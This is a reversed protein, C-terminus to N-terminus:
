CATCGLGANKALPVVQSATDVARQKAGGTNKRTMLSM